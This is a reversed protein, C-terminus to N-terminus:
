EKSPVPLYKMARKQGKTKVKKEAILKKLPLSLDKTGVETARGIGEVGIGDPNAVICALAKDKIASMEAESRKEGPARKATKKAAPKAKAATKKAAKTAPKAPTTTAAPTTSTIGVGALVSKQVIDVLRKSFDATLANIESQMSM